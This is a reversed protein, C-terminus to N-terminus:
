PWSIRWPAPAREGPADGWGQLTLTRGGESWHMRARQAAPVPGIGAWTPRQEPEVGDGHLAAVLHTALWQLELDAARRPQHGDDHVDRAIDVLMHGRGNRWTTGFTVTWAQRLLAGVDPEAGPAGTAAPRAAIALWDDLRALRASWDEVLRQTTAEPLLAIGTTCHWRELRELLPWPLALDTKPPGPPSAFGPDPPSCDGPRLGTLASRQYHFEYLAARRLGAGFDPREALLAAVERALAADRLALAGLVSLHRQALRQSVSLMATSRAGGLLDLVLRHAVALHLAAATRDGARWALTASGHWWRLCAVAGYAPDLPTGLLTMPAPWPEDIDTGGALADDCRPGLAAAADRQRVLGEPDALWTAVCTAGLRDDPACSWPLGQPVALGPATPPAEAPGSGGTPSAGLAREQIREATRQHAAWVALGAEAPGLDPAARVGALRVHLHAATPGTALPPQLAEPWPRAPSDLLNCAVWLAYVGLVAAPVVALRWAIRGFGGAGGRPVEGPAPSVM